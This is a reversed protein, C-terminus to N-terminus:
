LAAQHVQSQPMGPNLILVNAGFDPAASSALATTVAAGSTVISAGAVIAGTVLISHLRSLLTRLSM